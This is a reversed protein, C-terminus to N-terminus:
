GCLSFKCTQTFVKWPHYIETINPEARSTLSLRLVSLMMDLILVDSCSEDNVQIYKSVLNHRSTSEVSTAQKSNQSQYDGCETWIDNM